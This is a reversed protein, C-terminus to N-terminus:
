VPFPLQVTPAAVHEPEAVKEVPWEAVLTTVTPAEVAEPEAVCVGGLKEAVPEGLIAGIVHEPEAM